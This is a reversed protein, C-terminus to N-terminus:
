RPLPPQASRRSHDCNQRAMDSLRGDGPDGVEPPLRCCASL